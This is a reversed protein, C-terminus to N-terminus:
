FMVLFCSVPKKLWDVWSFSVKCRYRSWYFSSLLIVDFLTMKSPPDVGFVMKNRFSWTLWWLGFCVGELLKKHKSSMRINGFWSAWEDFSRLEMFDVNWWRCIKRFNDKAFDCAFFLHASSEVGKGCIPCMISPIDLGRRSLKFRTPLCDLRVKWAHINVKIPVEKIWRTQSSVNPLNYDDIAKRISSVSFEGSGELAWYWRDQAVGLVVNGLADLLHQLQESEVGSRPIRRFSSWVNEQMLKSAVDIEKNDELSYLRPFTHKLANEGCWVDDWFFTKM